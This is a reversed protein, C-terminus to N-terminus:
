APRGGEPRRVVQPATGAVTFGLAGLLALLLYGDPLGAVVGSQTSAALWFGLLFQTHDRWLLGGALFLAAVGLALVSIAAAELVPGSVGALGLVAVLLGYAAFGGLWAWGLVVALRRTLGRTTTVRGAVHGASGLVATGSLLAFVLWAVWEPLAWPAAAGARPVTLFLLVFGLSWAVAWVLYLPRVPGWRPRFALVGADDSGTGPM